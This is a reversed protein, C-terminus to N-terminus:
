TVGLEKRIKRQKALYISAEKLNGKSTEERARKGYYHARSHLKQRNQRQEKTYRAPRGLVPKGELLTSSTPYVQRRADLYERIKEIDDETYLFIKVKGFYAVFSAKLDAEENENFKRLTHGSIGLMEAAERLMYYTGDLSRVFKTAPDMPASM